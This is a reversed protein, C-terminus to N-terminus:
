FGVLKQTRTRRAIFYLVLPPVLGALGGLLLHVSINEVGLAQLVERVTASFITHTLYIAMSAQGLLVLWQPAHRGSGFWACFAILCLASLFTGIGLQHFISTGLWPLAVGCLGFCLGAAWGMTTPIQATKIWPGLVMGLIFYPVMRIAPGIWFYVDGSLPILQILVAAGLVFFLIKQAQAPDRLLGRLAIFALQILLLAWLFWFHWRGPIPSQYLESVDLPTNAASGAALKVLIFIYTWLLMPYLLRMVRSTIFKGVPARTLSRTFFLGSVMFFLPMHFAYIRSDLAQFLADDLMGGSYIGRWSHGIVVLIIAFGKVADVWDLHGKQPLNGTNEM